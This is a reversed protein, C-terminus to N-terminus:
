GERVAQVDIDVRLTKGIAFVGALVRQNWSIAFDDRSLEATASFGARTGGWPDPGTGHYTVQLRVPGSIQKLTLAGDLVWRKPGVRRLGESKFAIEPYREIDLFDPARLHADRDPDGTQVSAPNIRVSVASYELPAAIVLEGSFETLRGHVRSLGLHTATARISSHVPDIRWTGPLPLTDAGARALEIQGVDARGGIVTIATAVPDFGGASIIMTFGGDGTGTLEFGGDDRASTRGVQAGAPDIVTVVAHPVPWGDPTGIRGSVSM